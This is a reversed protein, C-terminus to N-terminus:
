SASSRSEQPAWISHPDFSLSAVMSMMVCLVFAVSAPGIQFDVLDGVKVLMVLLALLMVDLMSWRGIHEVIWYVIRRHRAHLLELWCLELLLVLKVLPFVVSFLLIVSGVFWEGDRLMELTGSLISASSQHGFQEVKLIPLLIAPWFLFFSGLAAAATRRM